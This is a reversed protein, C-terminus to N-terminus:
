PQKLPIGNKSKMTIAKEISYIRLREKMTSYKIGLIDAWEQISHTKGNYTIFRRPQQTKRKTNPELFIAEEVNWGEQLRRNITVRSVPSEKEWETITKINGNLEILHNSRTNNSQEKQTAWKVNGPEYDGHNDIREVSHQESPRPGLYNYFSEFSEFWEDLIDIGRAGYRHYDKNNPNRCRQKIGRWIHYEDSNSLGHTKNSLGQERIRQLNHCGCSRTNGSKVNSGVAIFEKGCDCRCYWLSKGSCNKNGTPGLITVKNKHFGTFDKLRKM